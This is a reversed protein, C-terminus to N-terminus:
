AAHGIELRGEALMQYPDARIAEPHKNSLDVRYKWPVKVIWIPQEIATSTHSPPV